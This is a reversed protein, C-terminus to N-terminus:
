CRHSQLAAKSLRWVGAIKRLTYAGTWDHCGSRSANTRLRVVRATATTSSTVVPDVDVDVSYLGDRRADAIWRARGRSANQLEPALRDFASAYHGSAIAQWHRKVAREVAAAATDAPRPTKTPEPTTEVPSETPEPSPSATETPAPSVTATPTPTPAPESRGRAVLAGAIGALVLLLVVGGGILWPRWRRWPDEGVV